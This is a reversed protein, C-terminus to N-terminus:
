WATCTGAESPIGLPQAGLGIWIRLKPNSVWERLESDEIQDLRLMVRYALDGTAKPVDRPESVLSKSNSWLGDAVAIIHGKQTVGAETSSTFADFDIHTVRQGLRFNVGLQWQASM